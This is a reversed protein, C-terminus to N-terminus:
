SSPYVHNRHTTYIPACKNSYQEHMLHDLFAKMSFGLLPMEDSASHESHADAKHQAVVRNALVPLAEFVAALPSRLDDAGQELGQENRNLHVLVGFVQLLVFCFSQSLFLV